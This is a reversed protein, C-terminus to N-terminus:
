AENIAQWFAESEEETLDEILMEERPPLPKARALVEERTPAAGSIRRPQTSV